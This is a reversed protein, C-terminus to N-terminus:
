HMASQADYIKRIGTRLRHCILIIRYDYAYVALYIIVPFQAFLKFTVGARFQVMRIGGCAFTALRLRPSSRGESWVGAVIEFM